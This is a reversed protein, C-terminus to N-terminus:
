RRHAFTIQGAAAPYSYTGDSAAALRVKRQGSLQGFLDDGERFVAFISTAAWRM